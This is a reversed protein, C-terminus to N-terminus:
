DGFLTGLVLGFGPLLPSTLTDDAGIELAVDFAPSQETARRFALLESVRTDILWLERLGNREYASKKAGLDYRWTSPSRVEVALAPVSYPRPEGRAPERGQPYWLLDPAFVNRGDILVDVPFTAEGRGAAAHTWAHLAVFLEGCVRQHTLDPESVVVEGEILESRVWREGEDPLALYEQATMRQVTVMGSM